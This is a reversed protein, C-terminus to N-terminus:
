LPVRVRGKPLEARFLVAFHLVLMQIVMQPLKTDLGLYNMDIDLLAPHTRVEPTQPLEKPSLARARCVVRM